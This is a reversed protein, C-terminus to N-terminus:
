KSANGLNLSNIFPLLHLELAGIYTNSNINQEFFYLKSKGFYNFAGWIMLSKKNHCDKSLFNNTNSIDHWYYQYGDPDDLNFKKEDSFVVNKWREGRDM